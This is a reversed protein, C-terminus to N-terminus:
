HGWILTPVSLAISLLAILITSRERGLRSVLLAGPIMPAISGAFLPVVIWWNPTVTSFASQATIFGVVAAAAMFIRAFLSSGIAHRPDIRSLTLLTMGVPGWGAGSIGSSFGALLGIGAVRGRPVENEARVHGLGRLRITALVVVGVAIILVAIVRAIMDKPLLAAFLPGIFAGIVGGILLPLAVTRSFNGMGYHSGAAIPVVLVQLGLSLAAVFRADVGLLLLGPVLVGGYVGVSSVAIGAALAVLASVLILQHENAPAFVLTGVILATSLIPLTIGLLLTRPSTGLRNAWAELGSESSSTTRPITTEAM